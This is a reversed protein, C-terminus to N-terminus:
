QNERLSMIYAAVDAMELRTLTLDPMPRYPLVLRGVIFETTQGPKDAISTFSPVDAKVVGKADKGVIHCNSCIQQAIEMGKAIDPARQARPGDEVNGVFFVVALGSLIVVHLISFLKTM